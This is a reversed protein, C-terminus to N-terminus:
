TMIWPYLLMEGLSMKGQVVSVISLPWSLLTLPIGAASMVVTGFVNVPIDSNPMLPPDSFVTHWIFWTPLCVLRPLVMLFGAGFYFSFFGQLWSIKVKLM